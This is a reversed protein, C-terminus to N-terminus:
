HLSENNESEVIEINCNLVRAALRLLIRVIRVRARLEAGRALKVKLTLYEMTKVVDIVAKAM